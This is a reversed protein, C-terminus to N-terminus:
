RDIMPVVRDAIWKETVPGILKELITGTGDVLYTEPVAFTGWEVAIRAEPDKVSPYAIGGTDALFRRAAEPKDRMNIGVVQLGHSAYKRQTAVLIPHEERCPPCWSAWVNVLVTKGQYAGIDIHEGSLSTGKLQPAPRGILVSRVITPDRGLGVGLVEIVGLALVAILALGLVRRLMRTRRRPRAGSIEPTM